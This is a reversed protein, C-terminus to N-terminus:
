LYGRTESLRQGLCHKCLWREPHNPCVCGAEIFKQADKKRHFKWREGGDTVVFWVPSTALRGRRIASPEHIRQLTPM